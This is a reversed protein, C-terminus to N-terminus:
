VTEEGNRSCTPMFPPFTGCTSAVLTTTVLQILWATWPPASEVCTEGEGRPSPSSEPPPAQQQPAAVNRELDVDRHADLNKPDSKQLTSDPPQTVPSLAREISSRTPRSSLCRCMSWSICAFGFVKLLLESREVAPRTLVYHCESSIAYCIALFEWPISTDQPSSHGCDVESTVSDFTTNQGGGM